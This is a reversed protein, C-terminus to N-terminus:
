PAEAMQLKSKAPPRLNSLFTNVNDLSQLHLHKSKNQSHIMKASRALYSSLEKIFYM